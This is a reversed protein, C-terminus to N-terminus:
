EYDEKITTTFCDPCLKHNPTEIINTVNVKQKITIQQHHNYFDVLEQCDENLEKNDHMVTMTIMITGNSTDFTKTEKM